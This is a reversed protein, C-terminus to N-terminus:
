EQETEVPESTWGPPIVPPVFPNIAVGAIAMFSDHHLPISFQFFGSYSISNVATDTIGISFDTRNISGVSGLFHVDSHWIVNGRLGITAINSRIRGLAHGGTWRIEILYTLPGFFAVGYSGLVVSSNTVAELILEMTLNENLDLGSVQLYYVVDALLAVAFITSANYHAVEEFHQAFHEADMTASIKVNEQAIINLAYLTFTDASQVNNDKVADSVALQEPLWVNISLGEKDHLTLADFGVFSIGPKEYLNFSDLNRSESDENHISIYSMNAQPLAFVAINYFTMSIAMVIVFSTVRTILKKM